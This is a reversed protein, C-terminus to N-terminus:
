RTAEGALASLDERVIQIVGGWDGSRVQRYLRMTPYWAADCGSQHWRWDPVSPILTWVKKGLAGALHAVATDVSIVLDLCQILAATDSFDDLDDSWDRVLSGFRSTRLDSAHEGKQLSFFEIGATELLPAVEELRMSRYGGAQNTSSGAWVLGVRLSSAVPQMRQRWKGVTRNPVRLYPVQSPIALGKSGLLYPLSLLGCCADVQPLQEGRLVVSAVGDVGRVLEAASAPVEVITRIGREALLALYRAFQFLDGLGQEAFV